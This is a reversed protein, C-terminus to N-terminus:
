PKRAVIFFQKGFLPWALPLKLYARVLFASPPLKGKMTFPLFRDVVKEPRFGVMELAEVVSRDSLPLHHDFFDWYVDYTFRINPGLALLLGGSRLVRRSENLCHQFDTKSPLHEFFNSTFIVDLSDSPLAWPRTVDQSLVVVGSAAKAACAPNLDLAYKRAARINNVFECYGAGLDLLAADPRVWRQFFDRTLVQWVQDRRAESGAFRNAYITELCESM